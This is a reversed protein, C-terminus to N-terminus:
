NIGNQNFGIPKRIWCARARFYLRLIETVGEYFFGLIKKDLIGKIKLLKNKKFM